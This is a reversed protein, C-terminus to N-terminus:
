EFLFDFERILNIPRIEYKSKRRLTGVDCSYRDEFFKFAKTEQITPRIIPSEQNRLARVFDVLKTKGEIWKFTDKELFGNDILKQEIEKLDTINDSFIYNSIGEYLSLNNKIDDFNSKDTTHTIKDLNEFSISKILKIVKKFYQKFHEITKDNPIVYYLHQRSERDFYKYFDYKDKTPPATFVYQRSIFVELYGLYYNFNDNIFDEETAYPYSKRYITVLENILAELKDFKIEHLFTISEINNIIDETAFDDNSAKIWNTITRVIEIEKFCISKGQQNIESGIIFDSVFLNFNGLLQM